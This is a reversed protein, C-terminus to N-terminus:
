RSLLMKANRTYGEAALRAFYVGAPMGSADWRARHQGAEHRGSAITALERGLLDYIRVTLNVAKPVSYEITTTPNFPNPYNRLLAPSGPAPMEAASTPESTYRVVGDGDTGLLLQTSLPSSPVNLLTRIGAFPEPPVLETWVTDDLQTVFLGSVGGQAAGGAFLERTPLNVGLGFFYFPTLSLGASEWSKGGDRSLIVSGEMGAYVVSTDFPHFALADCANDGRLDPYATSWSEGKDDSRSIFPSLITTEGGVWVSVTTTNVRVVNTTSIGMEFVKQWIGGIERRFVLGESAAYTEGCILPSPFGDISRIMRVGSRDIGEDAPMWSSDSNQSCYILVSDEDGPRHEIGATVAYGLAGSQHPYVARVRRTQLGSPIWVTDEPQSTLHVYVGDDTGAYIKEGWQALIYVTRGALGAREFRGQSQAANEAILALLALGASQLLRRRM